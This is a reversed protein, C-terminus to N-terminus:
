YISDTFSNDTDDEKQREYYTENEIAARYFSETSCSSSYTENQTCCSRCPCIFNSLLVIGLVMFTLAFYYIKEDLLWSIIANNEM